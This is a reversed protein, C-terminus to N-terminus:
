NQYNQPLIQSWASLDSINELTAGHDYTISKKPM